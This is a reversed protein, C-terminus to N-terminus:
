PKHIAARAILEKFGNLDLAGLSNPTSSSKLRAPFASVICESDRAFAPTM